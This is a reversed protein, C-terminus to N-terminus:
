DILVPFVSNEYTFSKGFLNGKEDFLAIEDIYAEPHFVVRVDDHRLVNKEILRSVAKIADM